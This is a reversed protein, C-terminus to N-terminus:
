PTENPKRSFPPLSDDGPAPAGNRPKWNPCDECIETDLMTQPESPRVCTWPAQDAELWQPAPQMLTPRAYQCNAARRKVDPTM